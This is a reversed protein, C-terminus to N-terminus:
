PSALRDLRVEYPLEDLRAAGTDDSSDTVRAGGGDVNNVLIDIGRDIHDIGETPKMSFARVRQFDHRDAKM